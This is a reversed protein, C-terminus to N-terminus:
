ARVGEGQDSEGARPLLWMITTHAFHPSTTRDDDDAVEAEVQRRQKDAALVREGEAELRSLLAAHRAELEQLQEELASASTRAHAGASREARLVQPVGARRM